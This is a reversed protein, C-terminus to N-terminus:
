VSSSVLYRSSGVLTDMQLLYALHCQPLEPSLFLLYSSELLYSM